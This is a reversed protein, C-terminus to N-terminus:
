QEAATRKDRRPEHQDRRGYPTMGPPKYVALTTRALLLLRGAGAHRLPSPNRVAALDAASHLLKFTGTSRSPEPSCAGARKGM